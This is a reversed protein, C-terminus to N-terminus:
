RDGSSSNDTQQPIIDKNAPQVTDIVNHFEDNSSRVNQKYSTDVVERKESM